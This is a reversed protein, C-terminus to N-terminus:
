CLSVGVGIFGAIGIIILNYAYPILWASSSTGLAPSVLLALVLVCEALGTLGLVYLSCWRRDSLRAKILGLIGFITAATGALLLTGYAVRGYLEPPIVTWVQIILGAMIVAAAVMVMLLGLLMPLLRKPFPSKRGEGRRPRFWILSVAAGLMFLAYILGSPYRSFNARLLLFESILLCLVMVGFVALWRYYTKSESLLKAAQVPEGFEQITMDKNKGCSQSLMEDYDTVVEDAESKPLRWRVARSFKKLYAQKDMM